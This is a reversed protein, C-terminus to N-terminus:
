FPIDDDNSARDAMFPMNGSNALCGAEQPLVADQFASFPDQKPKVIELTNKGAANFWEEIERLAATKVVSNPLRGFGAKLDVLTQAEALLDTLAISLKRYTM